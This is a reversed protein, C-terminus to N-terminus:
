YGYRYCCGHHLLLLLIVLLLLTGGQLLLHVLLLGIGLPSSGKGNSAKGASDALTFGVLGACLLAAALYDLPSYRRRLLLKGLLM